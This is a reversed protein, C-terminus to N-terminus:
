GEVVDKLKLCYLKSHEPGGARGTDRYVCACCEGAYLAPRGRARKEVKTRVKGMMAKGKMWKAVKGKVAKTRGKVAKMKGKVAKVAKVAKEAKVEKEDKIKKREEKRKDARVKESLVRVAANLRAVAVLLRDRKAKILLLRRETASMVVAM